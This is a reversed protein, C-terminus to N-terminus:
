FDFLKLEDKIRIMRITLGVYPEIRPTTVYDLDQDELGRVKYGKDTKNVISGLYFDYDKKRFTNATAIICYISYFPFAILLLYLLLMKVSYIIVHAYTVLAFVIAIGIALAIISGALMKLNSKQSYSRLIKITNEDVTTRGIMGQEEAEKLAWKIDRAMIEKMGRFYCTSKGSGERKLEGTAVLKRLAGEVSSVSLSPCLERIDQKTFRGIISKTALCVTDLASRKTEVLAFRDEFDRYAALVTGLLYQLSCREM